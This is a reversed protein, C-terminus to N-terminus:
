TRHGRGAKRGHALRRSCALAHVLLPASTRHWPLMSYSPDGLALELVATLMPETGLHGLPLLSLAHSSLLLLLGPFPAPAPCGHGRRRGYSDGSRTHNQRSRLWLSASYKMTSVMFSIKKRRNYCRFFKGEQQEAKGM